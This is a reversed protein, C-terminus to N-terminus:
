SLYESDTWSNDHQFIITRLMQKNLDVINLHKIIITTLMQKNLDVISINRWVKCIQQLLGTDDRLLSQLSGVVDEVLDHGARNGSDLTLESFVILTRCYLLFFSYKIYFMVTKTDNWCYYLIAIKLMEINM